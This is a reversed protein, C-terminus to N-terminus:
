TGELVQEAAPTNALYGFDGRLQGQCIPAEEALHFRKKHVEAFIASHLKDRDKIAITQGEHHIHVESVSGGKVKGLAYKLRRWFQKDKERQIIQLIQQEAAEDERDRAARLRRHLHKRRHRKGHKLFYNCKEKSEELKKYIEPVTLRFPGTM